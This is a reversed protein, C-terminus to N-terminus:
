QQDLTVSEVSTSDTESGVEIGDMLYRAEADEPSDAEITFEIFETRLIGVRYTRRTDTDSM